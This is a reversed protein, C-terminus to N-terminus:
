QCRCGLVTRLCLAPCREDSIEGRDVAGQANGLERAVRSTAGPDERQDRYPIPALPRGDEERRHEEAQIEAVGRVRLPAGRYDQGFPRRESHCLRPLVRRSRRRLGRREGPESQICPTRAQLGRRTEVAHGGGQECQAGRPAQFEREM